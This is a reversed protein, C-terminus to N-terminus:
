ERRRHRRKKKSSSKKKGSKKVMAKNEQKVPQIVPDDKDTSDKSLQEVTFSNNRLSYQLVRKAGSPKAAKGEGTYIPFERIFKGEKIYFNDQGRYGKSQKRTLDPFDLKSARSNNFEFSYINTYKTTDKSHSEILLEPNGDVDMDANYVDVVTGELDGTTTTYNMAVSDSHLIIFSGVDTAGRGWSLIDFDNGPAVEVLKHFRFPAQLPPAKPTAVKKVAKDDNGSCGALIACAALMMVTCKIGM